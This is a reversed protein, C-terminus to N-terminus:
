RENEKEQKRRINESKQVSKQNRYNELRKRVSYRDAEGISKDTESKAANFIERSFSNGYITQLESITESEVDTRIDYCLNQSEETDFEQTQEKLEIYEKQASDLRTKSENSHREM